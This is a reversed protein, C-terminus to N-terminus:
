GTLIECMIVAVDRLSNRSTREGSTMRSRHTSPLLIQGRDVNCDYDDDDDSSYFVSEIPLLYCFNEINLKVCGDKRVLVKQSNFPSTTRNHVQKFYLLGQLIQSVVALCFTQRFAIPIKPLINDLSGANALETDIDSIGVERRHKLIRIIM